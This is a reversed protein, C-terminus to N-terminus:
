QASCAPASLPAGRVKCFLYVTGPQGAEEHADLLHATMADGELPLEADPCWPKQDEEEPEAESTTGLHDHGLIHKAGDHGANSAYGGTCLHQRQVTVAGYAAVSPAFSCRHRSRVSRV